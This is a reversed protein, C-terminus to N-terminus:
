SYGDPSGSENTGLMAATETDMGRHHRRHLRTVRRPGGAGRTTRTGSCLPSRRVSPTPRADELEQRAAILLLHHQSGDGEPEFFAKM